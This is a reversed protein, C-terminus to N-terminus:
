VQPRTSDSLLPPSKLAPGRVLLYISLLAVGFCRHSRLLTRGRSLEELNLRDAVLDTLNMPIMLFLIVGILFYFDGRQGNDVRQLILPALLVLLILEYAIVQSFFLAGTVTAALLYASYDPLRRMAAPRSLLLRVLILFGWCAFGTLIMWLKLDIAPGGVVVLIRNWSVIQYNAEVLNYLVAKHAAGIYVVYEKCLNFAGEVTGRALLGGFLNLVIVFIVIGFVRKGGGLAFALVLFPLALHPKIFTLAWLFCGFRPCENEFCYQGLAICGAFFLGTQGVALAPQTIPNLLLAFIVIVWGMGQQAPSRGFTWALTGCCIGLFTSLLFWSAEAGNMTMKAFPAFQAIGQPPLFFGCNLAVDKENTPPFLEAMRFRIVPLFYPSQGELAVQAGIRYIILDLQNHEVLSQSTIGFYVILGVALLLKSALSTRQHLM